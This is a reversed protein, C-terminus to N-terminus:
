SSGYTDYLSHGMFKERYKSPIDTDPHEFGVDSPCKFVPLDIREDKRREEEEMGFRDAFGTRYLYKNLPRKAPGFGLHSPSYGTAYFGDDYESAGAKGGWARRSGSIYGTGQNIMVNEHVPILNEHQDEGAYAFGAAQLDRLNALCKAKKAQERAAALSPLLISILLAIIAIVVLLEVLTFARANKRQSVPMILRRCPRRQSSSLRTDQGTGSDEAPAFLNLPVLM